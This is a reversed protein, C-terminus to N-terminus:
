YVLKVVAFVAAVAFVRSITYSLWDGHAHYARKLPAIGSKYRLRKTAKINSADPNYFLM